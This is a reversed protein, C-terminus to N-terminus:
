FPQNNIILGKCREYMNYITTTVGGEGLTAGERVWLPGEVIHTALWEYYGFDIPSSSSPLTSLQTKGANFNTYSPEVINGYYVHGNMAVSSGSGPNSYNGGVYIKTYINKAASTVHEKV